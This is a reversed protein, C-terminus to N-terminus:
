YWDIVVFVNGDGATAEGGSELIVATDAPIEVTAGRTFTNSVTGAAGIAVSAASVYADLDGSVGLTLVAAAVTVEVTVVTIVAAVHGKMGSPGALYGIVADTDVAAAPFSYTITTPNSYSM